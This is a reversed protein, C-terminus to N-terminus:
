AHELRRLEIKGNRTRVAFTPQAYVAPSNAVSGDAMCFGSNHWPCYVVGDKYTGEDLPGALHSCTAAIAYIADGDKIMVAPIGAADVRTLKGPVLDQEDMVAVYEDSGGEWAVHNVGIGSSYSLEGGIYASYSAIGYATAALTIATGRQGSARLIASALNLVTVGSNLLAHLMGGRQEQGDTDVWNSIGTAASAVAGALGLWMLIDASRAVGGDEDDGLSALDLVLSATWAGIPITVLVPHVPHGFWVGALFDKLKYNPEGPQGFLKNTWSQVPTSVKDLWPMSGILQSNLRRLLPSRPPTDMWSTTQDGQNTISAM